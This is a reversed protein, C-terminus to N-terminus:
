LIDVCETCFYEVCQAGRRLGERGLFVVGIWWCYDVCLYSQLVLSFARFNFGTCLFLSQIDCYICGAASYICIYAYPWPKIPNSQAGSHQHLGNCESSRGSSVCVHACVCVCVCLLWMRNVPVVHHFLACLFFVYRHCYWVNKISSQLWHKWHQGAAQQEGAAPWLVVSCM